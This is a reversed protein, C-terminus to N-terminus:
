ALEWSLLRVERLVVGRDRCACPALPYQPTGSGGRDIVAQRPRNWRRLEPMQPRQLRKNSGWDSGGSGEPQQTKWRSSRLREDSVNGDGSDNGSGGPREPGVSEPTTRPCTRAGRARRSTCAGRAGGRRRHGPSFYSRPQWPNPTTTSARRPPTGRAGEPRWVGGSDNCPIGLWGPVGKRGLAGVGHGARRLPQRGNRPTAAPSRRGQRGRLPM